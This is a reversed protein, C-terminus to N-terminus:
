CSVSLSARCSHVCVKWFNLVDCSWWFLRKPEGEGATMRELNTTTRSINETHGGQMYM